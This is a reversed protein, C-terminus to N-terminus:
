EDAPPPVVPPTVPASSGAGGLNGSTSSVYTSGYNYNYGVVASYVTQLSAFSNYLTQSLGSSFPVPSGTSADLMQGPAITFTQTTGGASSSFVLGGHTSEFVAVGGEASMSFKTGRVGAIGNPIKVLYQSTASLKKVSAFIKGQELNLETDSVTDAGADTTTLKDIALTTGPTLRIVNQEASPTYAILGRM